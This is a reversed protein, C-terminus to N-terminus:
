QKVTGNSPSLSGDSPLTNSPQDVPQTPHNTPIVISSTCNCFVKYCCDGDVPGICENNRGCTGTAPDLDMRCSVTSESSSCCKWQDICNTAENKCLNVTPSLCVPEEFTDREIFSVTFPLFHTYFWGKQM